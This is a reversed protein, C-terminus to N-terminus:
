VDYGCTRFRKPATSLTAGGNMEQARHLAVNAAETQVDISSVDRGQERMRQLELDYTSIMAVQRNFRETLHFFFASGANLKDWLGRQRGSKELSLTDYFLSRNLMGRNGAIEVLTKLRTLDAIKKESLNLDKRIILNGKADAEYFNDISPTGKTDITGREADIRSMKRSFRKGPRLLHTSSTILSTARGIAAGAARDGLGHKGQSYEGNLIPFMMLPIQSANVIASSVNFGITGLFALRNAQAAIKDDWNNPPSRAFLARRELEEIILKVGHSNVDRKQKIKEFEEHM